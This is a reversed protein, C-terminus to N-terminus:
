KVMEDFFSIHERMAETARRITQRCGEAAEADGQAVHLDLLSAAFAIDLTLAAMVNCHQNATLATPVIEPM